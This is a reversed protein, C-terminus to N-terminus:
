SARPQNALKPSVGTQGAPRQQMYASYLDMHMRVKTEDGERANKSFATSLVHEYLPAIYTQVLPVVDALTSVLPPAAAYLVMVSGAGTNPPSVYFRRPDVLEFMFERVFVTPTAIMWQPDTASMLQRDVQRVAPGDVNQVVDLVELGDDPLAQFAGADLQVSVLKTFASPFATCVAHIALNLYGIVESDTWAVGTEDLLTSRAKDIVASAPFSM